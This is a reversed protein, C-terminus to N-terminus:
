KGEMWDPRIESDRKKSVMNINVVWEDLKYLLELEVKFERFREDATQIHFVTTVFDLSEDPTEYDGELSYVSGDVMRLKCHKLQQYLRKYSTAAKEFGEDRFMFAQWSASTDLASHYHAVLCTYAGPLQVTSHFQTLDAEAAATDGTIHKYNYPFDGLVTEIAKSFGPDTKNSLLHFQSYSCLMAMIAVMLTFM